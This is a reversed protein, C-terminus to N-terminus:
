RIPEQHTDAPSAESQENEENQKSHLRGNSTKVVAFKICENRKQEVTRADEHHMIQDRLMQRMYAEQMLRKAKAKQSRIDKAKEVITPLSFVALNMAHCLIKVMTEHQIEDKEYRHLMHELLVVTQELKRVHSSVPIVKIGCNELFASQTTFRTVQEHLVQIGQLGAKVCSKVEVRVYSSKTIRASDRFKEIEARTAEIQHKVKNTIIGKPRTEPLNHLRYPDVSGSIADQFSHKQFGQYVILENAILINSAPDSGASSSHNSNNELVGESQAPICFYRSGPFFHENEWDTQMQPKLQLGGFPMTHDSAAFCEHVTCGPIEGQKGTSFIVIVQETIGFLNVAMEQLNIVIGIDVLMKVQNGVSPQLTNLFSFIHRSTLSLIDAKAGWDYYSFTDIGYKRVVALVAGIPVERSQGAILLDRQKGKSKWASLDMTRVGEQDNLEQVFLQTTVGEPLDFSLNEFAVIKAVYPQGDTKRIMPFKSATMLGHVGNQELHELFAVAPVKVAIRDVDSGILMGNHICSQRPQQNQLPRVAPSYDRHRAAVNQTLSTSIQESERRQDHVPENNNERSRPNSLRLQRNSTASSAPGPGGTGAESLPRPPALLGRRHLEIVPTDLYSDSEGWIDVLHSGRAEPPFSFRDSHIIASTSYCSVNQFM